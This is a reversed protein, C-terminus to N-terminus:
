VSGGLVRKIQIEADQPITLRVFKGSDVTVLESPGLAIGVRTAARDRYEWFVLDGPSAAEPAVLQGCYGQDGVTAPLVVSAVVRTPDGCNEMAVAAPARTPACQGTSGVISASYIVDRAYDALTATGGSEPYRLALDAACAVAPGTNIEQWPEDQLPATKMASQCALDRDTVNPDDADFDLAAYPNTEPRQQRAASEPSSATTTTPPATTTSAGPEPGLATDCQLNYHRKGVSMMEGMPVFATIGGGCCCCILLVAVVVILRLTGNSGGSSSGGAM